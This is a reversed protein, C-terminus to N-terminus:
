HGVVEACQLRKLFSFADHPFFREDRTYSVNKANNPHWPDAYECVRTKTIVKWCLDAGFSPPMPM